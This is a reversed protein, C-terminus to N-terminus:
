SKRATTNTINPWLTKTPRNNIRRIPAPPPLEQGLANQQNAIKRRGATMSASQAQQIQIRLHPTQIRNQIQSQNRNIAVSLAANIIKGRQKKVFNMWHGRFIKRGLGQAAHSEFWGTKIKNIQLIM